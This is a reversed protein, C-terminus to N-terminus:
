FSTKPLTLNIKTFTQAKIAKSTFPWSFTAKPLALCFGSSCQTQIKISNKGTISGDGSSTFPWSFTEKPLALRFGSSCQTQIKISNKGTISGDGSSTFPWSFTEKPLALRFGSSCQTQIKISNKGTIANDCSSTFPWSNTVPGLSKGTTPCGPRVETRTISCDKRISKSTTTITNCINTLTHPTPGTISLSKSTLPFTDTCFTRQTLLSPKLARLLTFGISWAPQSTEQALDRLADVRIKSPIIAHIDVARIFDILQAKHNSSDYPSFDTSAPQGPARKKSKTM